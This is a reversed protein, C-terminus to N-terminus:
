ASWEWQEVAVTTGADYGECDEPVVVWGDALAVSSLVGSGGARTPTVTPRGDEDGHRTVRVFSRTGPESAIKRALVADTTPHATAPAHGVAKLLPRLFQVANVIAAVPYGPLAVVPTDDVVCLAVPHGPQLAVGHVLVTGLDAIVEPVHDRAGVSSGGTTVVVDHSDVAERIATRLAAEDDTVVGRRTPVGGWRSVYQAVTGGNTEVVEGPGPDAAVLEEGTPLVGVTPREYVAVADVGASKLLGLDSPRLRHGADYLHQGDSVDEGIPAVNAGGAAAAFVDVRDGRREADEIMVVADAGAPLESGTHVRVAEGPGVSGTGVDLVVPSRDGAGFTDAARVAFGDMAAREYHPVARPAEVDAALVRGDADGLAVRATRALPDVASLLRERAEAVRTRQKFGATRRDDTM